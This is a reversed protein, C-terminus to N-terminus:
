DSPPPYKGTFQKVLQGIALGSSKAVISVRLLQVLGLLPLAVPPSDVYEAPPCSGALWAAVDLGHAYAHAVYEDRCERALFASMLAVYSSVLPAFVGNLARVIELCQVGSSCGWAGGFVGLRQTNGAAVCARQSAPALEWGAFYGRLVTDAASRDLQETVAFISTGTALGFMANFATFVAVAVEPNRTSCFEIFQALAVVEPADALSATFEAALEAAAPQLSEPVDVSTPGCQIAVM